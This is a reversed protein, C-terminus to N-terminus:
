SGTRLHSSAVKPVEQHGAKLRASEAIQMPAAAMAMSVRREVRDELEGAGPM